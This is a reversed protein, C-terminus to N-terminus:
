GYVEYSNLIGLCLFLFAIVMRRFKRHCRLLGPLPFRPPCLSFNVWRSVPSYSPVILFCTHFKSLLAVLAVFCLLLFSLLVCSCASSDLSWRSFSFSLPQSSYRLLTLTLPMPPTGHPLSTSFCLPPIM